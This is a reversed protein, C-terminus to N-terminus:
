FLRDGHKTRYLQTVGGIKQATDRDYIHEKRHVELMACPSM